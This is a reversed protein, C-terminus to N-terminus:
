CKLLKFQRPDLRHNDPGKLIEVLRNNNKIMSSVAFNYIDCLEQITNEGYKFTEKFYLHLNNRRNYYDNVIGIIKEPIKHKEKYKDKIMTKFGLTKKTIAPHVHYKTNQDLDFKKRKLLENIEIPEEKQKKYLDIFHKNQSIIHILYGSALM